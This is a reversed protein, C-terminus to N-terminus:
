GHHRAAIALIEERHEGLMAAMVSTTDANVMVGALTGVHAPRLDCEARSRTPISVTITTPSRPGCASRNV